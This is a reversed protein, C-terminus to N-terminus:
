VANRSTMALPAAAGKRASLEFTPFHFLGFPEEGECTGVNICESSGSEEGEDRRSGHLVKLLNDPIVAEASGSLVIRLYGGSSHGIELEGWVELVLNQRLPGENRLLHANAHHLRRNAALRLLVVTESEPRGNRLKASAEQANDRELISEGDM